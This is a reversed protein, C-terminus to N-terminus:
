MTALASRRHMNPRALEFPSVRNCGAIRKSMRSAEQRGTIGNNMKRFEQCLPSPIRNGRAEPGPIVMVQQRDCGQKVGGPVTGRGCVDGGYSGVCATPGGRYPRRVGDGTLHQPTFYKHISDRGHSDKVPGQLQIQVPQGSQFYPGKIFFTLIRQAALM